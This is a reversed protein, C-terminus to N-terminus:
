LNKSLLYGNEICEVCVTVGDCKEMESKPFLNDCEYCEILEEEQEEECCPCGLQGNCIECM